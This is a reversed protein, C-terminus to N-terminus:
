RSSYSTPCRSRGSRSGSGALLRASKRPSRCAHHRRLRGANKRFTERNYSTEAGPLGAIITRELDGWRIDPMTEFRFRAAAFQEPIYDAEAHKRQLIFIDYVAFDIVDFRLAYATSPLRWLLDTRTWDVVPMFNYCVIKIGAKAVANLSDKWAGIFHSHQASRVKISNHIPISEVVSWDFGAAEIEMKRELVDAPPWAEGRYLHHLATVIGTAGAQKVDQLTIPDQPGFWRWTEKM